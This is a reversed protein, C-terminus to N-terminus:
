FCGVVIPVGAIDVDCQGDGEDPCVVPTGPLCVVEAETLCPGWIPAVFQEEWYLYEDTYNCFETGAEEADNTCAQSTGPTCEGCESWRQENLVEQNIDFCTRV